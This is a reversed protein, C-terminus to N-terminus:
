GRRADAILDLFASNHKKSKPKSERNGLLSKATKSDLFKKSSSLVKKSSGKARPRSHSDSDSDSDSDSSSDSDSDSDSDSNSSSDSDSDSDSEM